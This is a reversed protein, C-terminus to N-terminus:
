RVVVCSRSVTGEPSSLRYFYVGGPVM